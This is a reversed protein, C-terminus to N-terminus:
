SVLQMTFGGKYNYNHLEIQRFTQSKKKGWACYLDINELMSATAKLWM